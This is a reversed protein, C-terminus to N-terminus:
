KRVRNYYNMSQIFADEFGLKQMEELHERATAFDPFSGTAYRYYGDSCVYEEVGSLEKFVESSIPSYSAKVQITFSYSKAPAANGKGEDNRLSRPVYLGSMISPMPLSDGTVTAIVHRNLYRGLILENRDGSHNIAIPADEGKGEMKIRSSQVGQNELYKAVHDVRQMSLLMNFESPGTADTHGTLLVETEPNDM